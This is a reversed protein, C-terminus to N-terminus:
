AWEVILAVWLHLPEFTLLKSTHFIHLKILKPFVFHNSQTDYMLFYLWLTIWFLNPPPPCFLNSMYKLCLPIYWMRYQFAQLWIGSEYGVELRMNIGLELKMPLLLSPALVIDRDSVQSIWIRNEACTCLWHFSVFQGWKYISELFMSILSTSFDPSLVPIYPHLLTLEYNNLYAYVISLLEPIRNCRWLVYYDLHVNKLVIVCFFWKSHEMIFFSLQKIIYLYKGQNLYQVIYVHM